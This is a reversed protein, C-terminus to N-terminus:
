NVIALVPFILPSIKTQNTPKTKAVLNRQTITQGLVSCVRSAEFEFGGAESEETSPSFTYAM